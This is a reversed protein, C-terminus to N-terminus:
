TVFEKFIQVATNLPLVQLIAINLSKNLIVFHLMHFIRKVIM